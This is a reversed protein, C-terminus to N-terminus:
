EADVALDGTLGVRLGAPPTELEDRIREFTQERGDEDGGALRLAAVTSRRDDSVLAALPDDLLHGGGRGDGPCPGGHGEPRVSSLVPRRGEM